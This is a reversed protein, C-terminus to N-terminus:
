AKRSHILDKVTDILGDAVKEPDVKFQGGAIAAKIEEVKNTDFVSGGALQGSLSQLQSSLHVGGQDTKGAAAKEASKGARAHATTTGVEATKTVSDNIKM